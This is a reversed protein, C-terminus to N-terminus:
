YVGWIVSIGGGKKGKGGGDVGFIAAGKSEKIEGRDFGRM